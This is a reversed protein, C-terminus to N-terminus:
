RAEVFARMPDARQVADRLAADSVHTYIETTAISAHGLLRQVFRIDTGNEILLTAATHRLMHPTIPRSFGRGAQLQHMWRRLVQPRLPQGRSNKFLADDGHGLKLISRRRDALEAALDINSLYVLRDRLGKGLVHIQRGDSSVDKVRIACLESVRMGTAGILLICFVSEHLIGPQTETRSTLNTLEESSLSRPLRKPKKLHPSWSDFPDVFGSKKACYRSFTRLCAIRRRATGVSLARAEVMYRLFAKLSDVTLAASLDDHGLFAQFQDLDYRYADITNASLARDIACESLFLTAAGSLTM